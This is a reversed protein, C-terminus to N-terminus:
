RSPRAAGLGIIARDAIPEQGLQLRLFPGLDGGGVDRHFVANYMQPRRILGVLFLPRKDDGGFADRPHLADFVM